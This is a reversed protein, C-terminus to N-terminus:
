KSLERVRERAKESEKKNGLAFEAKELLYWCSLSQANLAICEKAATRAKEYNGSLLDIRGTAHLLNERQGLQQYLAILTEHYTLNAPDYNSSVLKEYIEALAQYNQSTLYANGLQLLSRKSTLGYGLQEATALARSGQEANGLSIEARALLFWCHASNINLSLCEKAKERAGEYKGQILFTKVWEIYVEQRKPSIELAKTFFGQAQEALVGAKETAGNKVAEELLTNTLGGLVIWTRTYLPRVKAVEKLIGIGEQTLVGHIKKPLQNQCKLIIDVYSLGAYAKLSYPAQMEAKEALPIALDCRERTAFSKAEVIRANTMLPLISYNWNLWLFAFGVLVFMSAQLKSPAAAEAGDAEALQRVVAEGSSRKLPLERRLSILFLAYALLTFFIFQTSFTEFSFLNAVGYGLFAAQLGHAKLALEGKEKKIKQLGWFLLTWLLLLLLVAGIGGQMATDLLINHGRDWWTTIGAGPGRSLNPLTPDYFKDFGIAFNEPGYGLVPSANIAQLTVQWAAVRPENQFNPVKLRKLLDPSSPLLNAALLLVGGALLTGILVYKMLLARTKEKTPYWFLFFFLGIGLGLFVARTETLAIAFVFLSALLLGWKKNDRIKSLALFTFLLLFLGLTMTSGLSSAPRGGTALFLDPLFGLWQFIAIASVGVAGALAWRLVRHWSREDLVLFLLLVFSTLFAFNVLGGSRVPDGWLSMLPDSGLLSAAAFLALQVFLLLLLIGPLLSIARLKRKGTAISWLFFLWLVSVAVRFVLVKAWDPPAFLPPFSLIPIFFALFAAFMSVPFGM